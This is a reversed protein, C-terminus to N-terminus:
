AVNIVIRCARALLGIFWISRPVWAESEFWAVAVVGVMVTVTAIWDPMRFWRVVPLLFGGCVALVFVLALLGIALALPGLFLTSFVLIIADARGFHPETFAQSVEPRNALYSAAGRLDFLGLYIVAYAIAGLLIMWHHRRLWTVGLVDRMTGVGATHIVARLPPLALAVGSM